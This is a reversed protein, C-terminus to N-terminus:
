PTTQLAPHASSWGRICVTWNGVLLNSLEDIGEAALDSGVGIEPRNELAENEAIPFRMQRLHGIEPGRDHQGSPVVPFTEDRNALVHTLKLDTQEVPAEDQKAVTAVFKHVALSGPETPQLGSM